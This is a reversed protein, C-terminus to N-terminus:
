RPCCHSMWAAEACARTRAYDRWRLVLQDKEIAVVIAEWWGDEHSEHAIM